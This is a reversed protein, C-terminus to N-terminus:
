PVRIGGFVYVVVLIILVKAMVRRWALYLEWRTLRFVESVWIGAPAPLVSAGAGAQPATPNM